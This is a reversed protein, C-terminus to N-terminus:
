LTGTYRHSVGQQGGTLVDQPVCADWDCVPYPFMLNDGLKNECGGATTCEDTDDLADWYDLTTEVPHFLGMYHGVEHALTEGFLREDDASFAGDGGANALWSVVVLARDTEDLTGPISGAVGYYEVSGDITEGILITIQSGDAGAAVDAHEPDEGPFALDTGFASSETSYTLQLGYQAWIDEWRSLAADVGDTIVPDDALGQAYVIRADVTGSSLDSDQKLKAVLDVSSDVYYGNANVVGLEITWTGDTLAADEERVPWNLVTDKGELWIASTLSYEGYWDEWYLVENGNPKLVREVALYKDSSATLQFAEENEVELEITVLGDESDQSWTRTELNGDFESLIDLLAECGTLPLSALAVILLPRTRRM